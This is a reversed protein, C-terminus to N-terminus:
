QLEAGLCFAKVSLPFERESLAAGGNRLAVFALNLHGGVPSDESPLLGNVPAELVVLSRLTEVARGEGQRFFEAAFPHAQMKVSDPVSGVGAEVGVEESLM